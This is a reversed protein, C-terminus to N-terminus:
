KDDVRKNMIKNSCFKINLRNLSNKLKKKSGLVEFLFNPDQLPCAPSLNLYINLIHVFNAIFWINGYALAWTLTSDSSSHVSQNLLWLRWNQVIIGMADPDVVNLNKSFDNVSLVDFNVWLVQYKWHLHTELHWGFVECESMKIQSSLLLLIRKKLKESDWFM